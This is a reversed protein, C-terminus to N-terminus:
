AVGAGPSIGRLVMDSLTRAAMASSRTVPRFGSGERSVPEFQSLPPRRELTSRGIVARGPRELCLKHSMVIQPACRPDLPTLLQAFLAQM